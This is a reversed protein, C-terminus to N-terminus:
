SAARLVPCERRAPQREMAGHLCLHRTAPEGERQLQRGPPQVPRWPQRFEVCARRLRLSALVVQPALVTVHPQQLQRVHPQGRLAQWGPPPVGLHQVSPPRQGLALLALTWVSEAAGQCKMRTRAVALDLPPPRHRPPRLTRSAAATLPRCSRLSLSGPCTGTRHRARQRCTGSRPRTQRQSVVATLFEVFLRGLHPDLHGRGARTRSPLCGCLGRRGAARVPRSSCGTALWRVDSSGQM